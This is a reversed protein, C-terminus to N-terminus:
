PLAEPGSDGEDDRVPREQALLAAVGPLAKLEARAAKREAQTPRVDQLHAPRDPHEMGRKLWWSMLGLPRGLGKKHTSSSSSRNLRCRDHGACKCYAYFRGSDYWVLAPAQRNEQDGGLRFVIEPAHRSSAVAALPPQPPPPFAQQPADPVVVLAEEGDPALEDALALCSDASDSDAGSSFLDDPLEGLSVYDESNVDSPSAALSSAM